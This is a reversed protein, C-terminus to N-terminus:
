KKLWRFGGFYFFLAVAATVWVQWPIAKLAVQGAAEFPAKLIKNALALEANAGEKLGDYGADQIQQDITNVDETNASDHGMVVAQAKDAAATGNRAAIANYVRGGPAYDAERQAELAAEKKQEDSQSVGFISALFSM